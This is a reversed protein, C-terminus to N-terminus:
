EPEIRFLDDNIATNVEADTWRIDATKIGDYFLRVRGSQRFGPEDVWYFDSYIRHHWGQPTDWAVKRISYDAQDIGFVTEGGSPDSVQVFYSSHGAVQDDPLRKLEFGENLAFRIASFGFSSAAFADSQEQPLRGQANYLHEGDYSAQFVVAGSARADLRFKGTASNADDLETPMVRLMRYDDVALGAVDGGNFMRAHGSLRLTKAFRWADGGAAETARSVIERADLDEASSAFGALLVAASFVAIIGISRRCTM